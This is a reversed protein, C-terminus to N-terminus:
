HALTIFVDPSSNGDGTVLNTADSSFVVFRGDSSITAAYGRNNGVVGGASRDVLATANGTLDRVYVHEGTVSGTVLNTANSTFAVYRGDSSITPFQSPNNAHVGALGVSAMVTTSGPRNRVYVRRVDGSVGAVLNTARSTFAVRTGDPSIM